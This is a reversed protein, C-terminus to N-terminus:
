RHMRRLFGGEEGPFRRLIWPSVRFFRVRVTAERLKPYYDNVFTPSGWGDVIMRVRVGRDAAAVLKTVLRDALVGKEFIYTEFEITERARDIAGLLGAFYEDGSTFLIEDDWHTPRKSM